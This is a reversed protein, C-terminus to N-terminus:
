ARACVDRNLQELTRKFREPEDIQTLLTRIRKEGGFAPKYANPAHLSLKVNAKGFLVFLEEGPGAKDWEGLEVHAINSVAITSHGRAGIRLSLSHERQQERISSRYVRLAQLDGLMWVLAYASGATFLWKATTFGYVHLLWHALVGEVAVLFTFIGVLAYWHREKHHTFVAPGDPPRPALWWGMFFMTWIQLEFRAYAVLWPASPALTLLASEFADFANAGARRAARLERLLKRINLAALLLASGELVAVIVLAFTGTSASQSPLLARSLALGGALVPLVTWRALGARRIGLLWHCLAATFTLDVMIATAFLQPQASLYSSGAMLWCFSVLLTLLFLEVVIVQRRGYTEAGGHM